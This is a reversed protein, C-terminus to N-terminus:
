KLNFEKISLSFMNMLKFLYYDNGNKIVNNKALAKKQTGVIDINLTYEGPVKVVKTNSIVEIIKLWLDDVAYDIERLAKQDFVRTNLCHPPYLIGGNGIALLNNSDMNKVDRLIYPFQKYAALEGISNRQMQRVLMACVCRPYKDATKLLNNLLNGDYFADDDITVIFDRPYELMTYYYKKHSKMNECYRIELGKKCMNELQKPIQANVFEDKALWLIVKDPAYTQRLICEIVLWVSEIRSPITTLSVILKRKRKRNERIKRAPFITFYVPMWKNLIASAKERSIMKKKLLFYILNILIM